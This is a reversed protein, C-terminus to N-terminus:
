RDKFEKLQGNRFTYVDGSRKTKGYILTEYKSRSNEEVEIQNPQGFMDTINEITMGMWVKRDVINQLEEGSYKGRFKNTRNVKNTILEAFKYLNYSSTKDTLVLESVNVNDKKALSMAIEYQNVGEEHYAKERKKDSNKQLLYQILVQLPIGLIFNLIVLVSGNNENGFMVIPVFMLFWLGIAISQRKTSIGFMRHNYNVPTSMVSKAMQAGVAFGFGRVISKGLTSM